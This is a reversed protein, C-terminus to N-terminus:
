DPDNWKETELTVNNNLVHFVNTLEPGGSITPERGKSIVNGGAAVQGEGFELSEHLARTQCLWAPTQTL